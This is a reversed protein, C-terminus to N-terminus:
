DLDGGSEKSLIGVLIDHGHTIVDWGADSDTTRSLAFLFPFCCTLLVLMSDSVGEGDSV